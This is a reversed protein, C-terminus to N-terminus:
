ALAALSNGYNESYVTTETPLGCHHKPLTIFRCIDTALLASQKRKRHM